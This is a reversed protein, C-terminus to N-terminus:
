GDFADRLSQLNDGVSLEVHFDTEHMIQWCQDRDVTDYVAKFDIFIHHTVMVMNYEWCIESCSKGFLSLQYKAFRAGMFGYCSKPSYM